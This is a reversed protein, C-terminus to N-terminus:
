VDMNNLADAIDKMIAFEERSPGEGSKLEIAAIIEELSANQPDTLRLYDSPDLASVDHRGDPNLMGSHENLRLALYHALFRSEMTADGGTAADFYTAMDDVTTPGLWASNDDINALWGEIQEQSYTNHRDWNKWFGPTGAEREEESVNVSGHVYLIKGWMTESVPVMLALVFAIILVAIGALSGRM